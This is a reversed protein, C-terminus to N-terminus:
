VTSSLYMKAYDIYNQASKELMTREEPTLHRIVKGPVGAVLVGEPVVTNSLVVAGAAILSYSNVEVNDLVIAGMGILCFDRITCGHAIVGHGLTVMSGILLPSTESRVHLLCGDQINTGEGIRIYNIDGRVVANYWISANKEIVVDGIITANDAVFVSPHIKPTRNNIPRMM